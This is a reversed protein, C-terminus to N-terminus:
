HGPGVAFGSGSVRLELLVGGEAVDDEDDRGRV